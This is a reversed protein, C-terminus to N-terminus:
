LNYLHTTNYCNHSTEAVQVMLPVIKVIAMGRGSIILHKSFRYGPYNVSTFLICDSKVYQCDM